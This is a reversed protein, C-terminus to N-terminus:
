CYANRSSLGRHTRYILGYERRAPLRIARFQEIASYPQEKSVDIMGM